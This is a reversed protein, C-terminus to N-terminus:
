VMGVGDNFLKTIKIQLVHKPKTLLENRWDIVSYVNSIKGRKIMSLYAYLLSNLVSTKSAVGLLPSVM